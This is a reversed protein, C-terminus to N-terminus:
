GGGLLEFGEVNLVKLSVDATANLFAEEVLAEHL